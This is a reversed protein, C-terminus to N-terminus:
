NCDLIAISLYLFLLYRAISQTTQRHTWQPGMRAQMLQYALSGFDLRQVNNLFLHFSQSSAVYPVM